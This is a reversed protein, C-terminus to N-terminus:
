SGPAQAMQWSEDFGWGTYLPVGIPVRWAWRDVTRTIGTDPDTLPPHTVEVQADILEESPTGQIRIRMGFDVGVKMPISSGATVLYARDVKIAIGLAADPASASGPTQGYNGFMGVEVVVAGEVVPEHHRACAASFVALALIGARM